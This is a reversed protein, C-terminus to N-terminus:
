VVEYKRGRIFIIGLSISMILVIYICVVWTYTNNSVPLAQLFKIPSYDAGRWFNDDVYDIVLLFLFPFMIVAIKKKFIFALAVCSSAILGAFLSDILTYLVCYLFPNDYYLDAWMCGQGIVGYPYISDMKIAPLFMSLILFSLVLSFFIICAGSIFCAIYKAMFVNMRSTRILVNQTYGKKIESILSWGYPLVVFIPMLFYFASTYFSVVDTGIWNYFVSMSTLMCNENSGKEIFNNYDIRFDYISVVSHVLVLLFLFFATMLMMKNKFAKNLEVRLVKFFM